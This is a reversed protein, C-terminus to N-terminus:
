FELHYEQGAKTKLETVQTKLEERISRAIERGDIIKATM